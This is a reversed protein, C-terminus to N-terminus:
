VLSSVSPTAIYFLFFTRMLCFITISICPCDEVCFVPGQCSLEKGFVYKCFSICNGQFVSYINGSLWLSHLGLHPLCSWHSASYIM